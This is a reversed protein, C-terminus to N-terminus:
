IRSKRRGLRGDMLYLLSDSLNLSFLDIDVLHKWAKKNSHTIKLLLSLQAPGLETVVLSFPAIIQWM